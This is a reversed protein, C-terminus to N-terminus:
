VDCKRGSPVISPETNSIALVISRAVWVLPASWLGYESHIRAFIRTGPAIAIPDQYRRAQPSVNGGRVRPDSGDLTYHITGGAGSLRLLKSPDRRAKAPESGASSLRVVANTSTVWEATPAPFGQGDIWELRDQIWKKLYDVEEQYTKGVFFAPYVRKGLTPWRQYNREVAGSSMLSAAVQDIRALINSTAFVNTRLESWRDIYRQVFDPDDFLRKYWKYNSGRALEWRWGEILHCQNFQANGFGIDWDWVPGMRLKGNRDKHYFQSFWYGDTNKGLETLWHYDVFSDV